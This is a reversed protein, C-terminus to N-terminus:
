FIRRGQTDFGAFDPRSAKVHPTAAKWVSVISSRGRVDKRHNDAVLSAVGAPIDLVTFNVWRARFSLRSRTKSVTSGEFQMRSSRVPPAESGSLKLTQVSLGCWVNSRRELICVARVMMYDSARITFLGASVDSDVQRDYDIMQAGGAAVMIGDGSEIAQRTLAVLLDNREEM